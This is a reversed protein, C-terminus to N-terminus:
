RISPYREYQSFNRRSFPNTSAAPVASTGLGTSTSLGTSASLGASTGLGTSPGLGSATAWRNDEKLPSGQRSRKQRELAERQEIAAMERSNRPSFGGRENMDSLSTAKKLPSNNHAYIGFSGGLNVSSSTSTSATTTRSPAPTVSAPLSQRSRSFNSSSISDSYRTTPAPTFLRPSMVNRQASGDPDVHQVYNPNPHTQFNRKILTTPTGTEVFESDGDDTEDDITFQTGVDRVVPNLRPRVFKTDYEHLVERHIIATDKVQQSFRSQLFFLQGSMIVQLALVTFVTVSPRPDLPALPLFLMYVLVHGPSFLCFLRLCVPHPDWVSLEWVDRTKDPYARSEATEPSIMNAIFRLPSSTMPSAQVRVRRASPTEPTKEVSVEFLRYNRSRTMTYFANALTTLVLIWVVPHM